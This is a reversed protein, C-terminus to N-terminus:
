CVCFVIKNGASRLQTGEGTAWVTTLAKASVPPPPLTAGKGTIVVNACSHYVSFCMTQSNSSPYECCTGGTIKDTMMSLAQLSCKPCNVDPIDVVFRLGYPTGAANDPHPLHTLLVYNDYGDDDGM